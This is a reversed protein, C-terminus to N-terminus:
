KLDYSKKTSVETQKKAALKKTKYKKTSVKTTKDLSSKKNQYYITLKIINAPMYAFRKAHTQACM